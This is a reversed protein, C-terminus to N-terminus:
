VAEEFEDMSKSVGDSDVNEASSPSSSSTSSWYEEDMMDWGGDDQHENYGDDDNRMVVMGMKVMIIINHVYNMLTLNNIWTHKM